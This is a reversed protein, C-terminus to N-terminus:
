CMPHTRLKINPLKAKFIQFADNDSIGVDGGKEDMTTRTDNQQLQEEQENKLNNQNLVKYNNLLIKSRQKEKESNLRSEFKKKKMLILKIRDFEKERYKEFENYAKWKGFFQQTEKHKVKKFFETFYQRLQIRMKEQKMIQEKTMKRMSQKGEMMTTKFKAM